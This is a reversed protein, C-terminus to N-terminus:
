TTLVRGGTAVAVVILGLILNIGVLKRITALHKAALPYDAALVSQKYKKYAAFYVHFYILFMLIGLGQMIHVYLGVAGFGGFAKFIMWYGTAPLIAVALWVWFFFKEFVRNWLPLRIDPELSIAAPRLIQHAFFMGGVWIVASLAHLTLVISM